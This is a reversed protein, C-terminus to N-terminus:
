LPIYVRPRVFFARDYKQPAMGSSTKLVVSFPKGAAIAQIGGLPIPFFMVMDDALAAKKGVVLAGDVEIDVEVEVECPAQPDPSKFCFVGVGLQAQKAKDIPLVLQDFRGSLVGKVATLQVDLVKELPIVNKYVFMPQQTVAPPGGGANCKIIKIPEGEFDWLTNADECLPYLELLVEEDPGEGTTSDGGSTSSADSTSTDGGTSSSEGTSTGTDDTGVDAVGTTGTTAAAGTSTDVALTTADPGTPGPSTPDDTASTPTSTSTPAGTSGVGTTTGETAASSVMFLPNELSCASAALFLGVVLPRM